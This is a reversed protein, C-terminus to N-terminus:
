IEETQRQIEELHRDFTDFKKDILQLMSDESKQFLPRFVTKDKNLLCDSPEKEDDEVQSPGAQESM